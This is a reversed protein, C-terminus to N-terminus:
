KLGSLGSTGCALNAAHRALSTQEVGVNPVNISM